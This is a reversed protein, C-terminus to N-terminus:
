SAVVPLDRCSEGGKCVEFTVQKNSIETPELEQAKRCIGPIQATYAYICIIDTMRMSGASSTVRV